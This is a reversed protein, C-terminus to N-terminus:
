PAQVETMAEYRTDAGLLESSQATYEVYSQQAKLMVLYLIASNPCASRSGIPAAAVRVVLTGKNRLTLVTRRVQKACM